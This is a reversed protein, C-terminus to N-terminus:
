PDHEAVDGRQEAVHAGEAARDVLHDLRPRPIFISLTAPM